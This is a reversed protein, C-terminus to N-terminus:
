LECSYRFIRAKEDESDYGVAFAEGESAAWLGMIIWTEPINMESWENGDFHYLAGEILEGAESDYDFGAAYVDDKESGNVCHLEFPIDNKMTHWESGDYHVIKSGIVESGDENWVAGVMFIDDASSGWVDYFVGVHFNYEERAWENGDYHFVSGWNDPGSVSVYINDPSSGWIGWFATRQLSVMEEWGEESYHQIEGIGWNINLLDVAYIDNEGFVWVDWFYGGLSSSPERITRWVGDKFLYASIKEGVACLCGNSNGHISIVAPMSSPIDMEEWSFGDYHFISGTSEESEDDSWGGAAFIDSASRGWISRLFISEPIAADMVNWCHDYDKGSDQLSADLNDDKGSDFDNDTGADIGNGADPM